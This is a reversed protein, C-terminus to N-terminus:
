NSITFFLEAIKSCDYFRNKEGGYFINDLNVGRQFFNLQM